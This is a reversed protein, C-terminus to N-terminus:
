FHRRVQSVHILNMTNYEFRWITAIIRPLTRRFIRYLRRATFLLWFIGLCCTAAFLFCLKASWSCWSLPQWRLSLPLSRKTCLLILLCLPPGYILYHPILHLIWLKRAWFTSCCKIKRNITSIFFREKHTMICISCWFKTTEWQQLQTTNSKWQM